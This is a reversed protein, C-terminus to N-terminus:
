LYKRFECPEDQWKISQFLHNFLHIYEYDSICDTYWDAKKKPKTSYITLDGENNRVIWEWEEPLNRLIVKEDDTFVWRPETYPELDQELQISGIDKKDFEVFYVNSHINPSFNAFNYQIVGVKNFNKDNPNIEKVKDGVKFKCKPEDTAPKLEDLPMNFTLSITKGNICGEYVSAFGNDINTIEGIVNRGEVVFQVRDGVQFKHHPQNKHKEEILVDVNETLQAIDDDHKKALKELENIRAELEKNTM